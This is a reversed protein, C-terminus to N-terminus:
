LKNQSKMKRYERELEGSKQQRIMRIIIISSKWASVLTGRLVTILIESMEVSWERASDIAMSIIGTISVFRLKEIGATAPGGIEAVRFFHPYIADVGSLWWRHNHVLYIAFSWKGFLICFENLVHPLWLSRVMLMESMTLLVSILNAHGGFSVDCGWERFPWISPLYDRLDPHITVHNYHFRAFSYFLIIFFGSLLIHQPIHLRQFGGLM